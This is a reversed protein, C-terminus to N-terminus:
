GVVRKEYPLIQPFLNMYVVAYIKFFALMLNKNMAVFKASTFISTLSFQLFYTLIDILVMEKVNNKINSNALM